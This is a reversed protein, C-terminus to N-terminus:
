FFDLVKMLSGLLFPFIECYGIYAKSVRRDARKEHVNYESHVFFVVIRSFYHHFLPGSNLVTLYYLVLAHRLQGIM